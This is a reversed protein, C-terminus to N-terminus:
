ENEPSLHPAGETREMIRRHILILEDFDLYNMDQGLRRSDRQEERLNRGSSALSGTKPGGVNTDVGCM